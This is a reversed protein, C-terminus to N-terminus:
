QDVGAERSWLDIEEPGIQIGLFALQDAGWDYVSVFKDGTMATFTTITVPREEEKGGMGIVESKGQLQQSHQMTEGDIEIQEVEQDFDIDDRQTLWAFSNGSTSPVRLWHQAKGGRLQFDRWSDGGIQITIRGVVQYDDGQYSVAEGDHLQYASPKSRGAPRSLLPAIATEQHPEATEIIEARRDFRTHLGEITESVEGSASSFKDTDPAAEELNAIQSDLLELQDDLARDFAAIQDLAADGVQQEGFLPAYGYTANRLRSIFHTLRKHPDDVYRIATIERDDALRGALTGLRDAREQYDRALTERLLRDSERRREKDRYGGYGPIRDLLNSIANSSM